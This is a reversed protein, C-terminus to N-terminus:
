RWAWGPAPAFGHRTLGRHFGVTVGLGTVVYLVVALVVDTPGIM